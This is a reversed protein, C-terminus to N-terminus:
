ASFEGVIAQFPDPGTRKEFDSFVEGPERNDLYYRLMGRLVDPVDRMHVRGRLEDAFRGNELTGGTCFTVGATIGKANDARIYVGTMGIDAIQPRACSHGCGTLAIRVPVDLEPFEEELALLTKQLYFETEVSSYNCYTIGTCPSSYGTLMGPRLPYKRFFPEAELETVRASPIDRLILDRTSTIAICCGDGPASSKTGGEPLLGDAAASDGASTLGGFAGDESPDCYKQALDALEKLDEATMVGMSVCVGAYCYGNQKQPHISHYIGYNWDRRIEEGGHCLPGTIEEVKKELTETGLSEVLNKFRGLGRRARDGEERYILAMARATKVVDEPLLFFSLRAALRPDASLGGGVYVAFGYIPENGATGHSEPGAGPQAASLSGSDVRSSLPLARGSARFADPSMVAPVFSLDNVEAYGDNHPSATISVKFKRPLNSYEPNGTFEANLERVIPRIDMFEEPDAGALPSGVAVRPTDGESMVTTLGAASLRTLVERADTLLVNHIEVCQRNTFQISGQGFEESLSAITRAQQISLQGGPVRIHILYHGNRPRQASIGIWKLRALDEFGIEETPLGALRDLDYLASLGDKHLKMQEFMPLKEDKWSRGSPIAAIEEETLKRM